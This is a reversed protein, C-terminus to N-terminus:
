VHSPLSLIPHQQQQCSINMWSNSQSHMASLESCAANKRGLPQHDDGSEDANFSEVQFVESISINQDSDANKSQDPPQQNTEAPANSDVNMLMKQCMIAGHFDLFTYSLLKLRESDQMVSFGFSTTWTDLASSVAPLVLREVGLEGLKKELVNMLFRCMGLRRYQFRTGVFPIEAIKEDHVRVTAVTILEDNKELVVTYFGQFNLRNLESWRSFIVDEMIDSRTRSEKIPDFCEHMVDLAVNLKGYSETMFENDQAGSLSDNMKTCKLFTLTLLNDVPIPKGLLQHLGSFIQECRKTCFWNGSHYSDQLLIKDRDKVCGFHYQHGCQHCCLNSDDTFQDQNKNFKSKGCIGCYCSPCFWDGDPIDELGLCSTHFSSPCQDCLILEGGDHCISCIHDNRKMKRSWQVISTNNVVRKQKIELQCEALSRGDELFLNAAPRHNTSGAHSEFNTLSYVEQCCNCRIGDRTIKGEKLRRGRYTVATEPVVVGNDILWSLVTRPGRHSSSVATRTSRLLRTSPSSDVTVDGSVQPSLNRKKRVKSSRLNEVDVSEVKQSRTSPNCDVTVDGSKQPSLNRKKRVKSPRLNEVDVSEVKQSQTSPNCDATVDGGLEQPSLNRKKRLKSPRLNEVDVSEVKQSQTSPNCDVTVDGSEQPSLNRKKRVKSPRLNEVDVSEAKQPKIDNEDLIHNETETGKVHWRCAEPLTYCSHGKPSLYRFRGPAWYNFIKWGCSVLHKTAEMRLESREKMSYSCNKDPSLYDSVSQPCHKSEVEVEVESFKKTLMDRSSPRCRKKCVKSGPESAKELESCVKYLSAYSKGSPSFYRLRHYGRYTTWKIKWGLSALHKRVKISLQRPKNQSLSMRRFKIITDPCFEPEIVLPHWKRSKRKRMESSELKECSAKLYKSHNKRGRKSSSGIEVNHLLGDPLAKQEEVIQHSSVSPSAEPKLLAKLIPESLELLPGERVFRESSNLLGLFQDVTFKLNDFIVQSLLERWYDRVFFTWEMLKNNENKERAEYWIQKVSVFLPSEKKVENILELFVWNGRPKWEETLEDWEQTLRLNDVCVMMDDGQDPFFIRREESGDEHDFVVGEWWADQIFSDVCQGYQLPASKSFTLPPPLPRIAGRHTNPDWQDSKTCVGDILPSVSLTDVLNSSGDDCLIHDYEVIRLSKKVHIVKGTHWSGLFGEDLSRVEVREGSPLKHHREGKGRRKPEEDAAAM